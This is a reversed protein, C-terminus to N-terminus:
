AAPMEKDPDTYDEKSNNRRTSRAKLLTKYYYILVNLENALSQYDLEEYQGSCYELARFLTNLRQDTTQRITRTDVKETTAEEEKHLLFKEAFQNNAERLPDFYIQLNLVRAAARVDPDADYDKFLDNLRKTEDNYTDSAINRGETDFFHNLMMMHPMLSQRRATGMITIHNMVAKFLIDREIDLDHLQNSLESCTEQAKIKALQPLMARLANFVKKLHLTEIEHREVIKVIQQVFMIYEGNRLLKFALRFIRAAM